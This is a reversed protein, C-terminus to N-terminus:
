YESLINNATGKGFTKEGEEKRFGVSINGEVLKGSLV